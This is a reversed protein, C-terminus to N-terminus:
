VHARGIEDLAAVDNTVLAREYREFEATVEALVDPINVNMTMERESRLRPAPSVRASSRM